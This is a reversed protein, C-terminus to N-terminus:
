PALPKWTRKQWRRIEGLILGAVLESRSEGSAAVLEDLHASIERSVRLQLRAQGRARREAEPITSNSKM